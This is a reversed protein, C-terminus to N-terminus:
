KVEKKVFDLIGQKLFFFACDTGVRAVESAFAKWERPSMALQLSMTVDQVPPLVKTILIKESM